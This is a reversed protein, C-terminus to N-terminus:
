QKASGVTSLSGSGAATYTLTSWDMSVIGTINGTAGEWRGTGDYIMLEVWSLDPAADALYGFVDDGNATSLTFWFIGAADTEGVLRFKGLHTAVGTEEIAFGSPTLTMQGGVKSKYPVVEEAQVAQAGGLLIGAGLLAGLVSRRTHLLVKHTIKM